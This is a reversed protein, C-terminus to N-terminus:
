NFIAELIDFTFDDLLLSLLNVVLGHLGLEALLESRLVVEHEWPLLVHVTRLRSHVNLFNDLVIIYSRWWNLIESMTVRWHVVLLLVIHRLWRYLLGLVHLLLVDLHNVSYAELLGARAITVLGLSSIGGFRGLM